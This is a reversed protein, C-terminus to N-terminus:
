SKNKSLLKREEEELFTLATQVQKDLSKIRNITHILSRKKGDTLAEFRDKAVPDQDILVTLVELM